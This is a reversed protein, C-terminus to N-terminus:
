QKDESIDEMISELGVFSCDLDALGQVQEVCLQSGSHLMTTTPNPSSIAETEKQWQLFRVGESFGLRM